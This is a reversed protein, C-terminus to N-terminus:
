PRRGAPPAPAQLEFPALQNPGEKVEVQLGSKEPRAYRGRLLDPGRSRNDDPDTRSWVISVRYRGAPAGDGPKNTSLEFSGDARAFGHSRPQDNDDELPV